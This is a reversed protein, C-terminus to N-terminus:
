RHSISAPRLGPEKWAMAAMAAASRISMSSRFGQGCAYSAEGAAQARGHSRPKLTGGPARRDRGAAEANEVVRDAGGDEEAGVGGAVHGALEEVDVAAVHRRDSPNASIKHRDPYCGTIVRAL